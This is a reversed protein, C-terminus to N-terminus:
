FLRFSSSRSTCCVIGHGYGMKRRRGSLFLRPSHVSHYSFLNVIPVCELQEVVGDFMELPPAINSTTLFHINYEKRSHEHPLGAPTFLVSNHENWKKSLNGSTDDCNMWLPFAVVRHGEARRRWPNGVMPDTFSWPLPGEGNANMFGANDCLNAQLNCM